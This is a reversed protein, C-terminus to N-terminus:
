NSTMQYGSINNPMATQGIATNNQGNENLGLASLGIATNGSGTTNNLLANYGAGTNGVGSNVNGSKYGYFTNATNSFYDIRGAKENNAKFILPQEDTTGIFNISPDTGANGNLLWAAPLDSLNAIGIFKNADSYYLRKNQPRYTILGASDKYPHNLTDKKAIYLGSDARFTGKSFILTNSSGLGQKIGQSFCGFSTILLALLIIKKM